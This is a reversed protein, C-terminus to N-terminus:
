CFGAARLIPSGFGAQQGCQAGLKRPHGLVGRGVGLGCQRLDHTFVRHQGASALSQFSFAVGQRLLQLLNRCLAVLKGALRGLLCCLDFAQICLRLPLAAFEGGNTPRERLHLQAQFRQWVQLAFQAFQAGLQRRFLGGPDSGIACGGDGIRLTFSSVDGSDLGVLAQGVGFRALVLHTGLQNFRLGRM